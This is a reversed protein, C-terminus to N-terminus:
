FPDKNSANYIYPILTKKSPEHPIFRLASCVFRILDPNRPQIVLLGFHQVKKHLLVIDINAVQGLYFEGSLSNDNRGSGRKQWGADYSVCLGEGFYQYCKAILKM